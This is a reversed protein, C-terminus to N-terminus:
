EGPMVTVYSSLFATYNILDICSDQFEHSDTKGASIMSTIRLLKTWLMTMISDSGAPWQDLISVGGSNYLMNRPGDIIARAQNLASRTLRWFELDFARRHIEDKGHMPHMATEPRCLMKEPSEM